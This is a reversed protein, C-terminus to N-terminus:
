GDIDSPRDIDTITAGGPDLALWVSAPLSTAGLERLLDRLSRGGRGIVGEAAARAARVDLAM